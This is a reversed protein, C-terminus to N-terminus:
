YLRLCEILMGAKTYVCIEDCLQLHLNNEGRAACRYILVNFSCARAFLRKKPLKDLCLPWSM